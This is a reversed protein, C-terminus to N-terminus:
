SVLNRKEPLLVHVQIFDHRRIYFLFLMILIPVNAFLLFFVIGSFVYVAFFLFVLVLGTLLQINDIFSEVEYFHFGPKSRVTVIRSSHFGNSVVIKTVDGTCPIIVPRKERFEYIDHDNVIIRLKLVRLLIHRHRLLIIKSLTDTPM